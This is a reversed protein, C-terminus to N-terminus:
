ESLRKLMEELEEASKGELLKWINPAESKSIESLVHTPDGQWDLLENPTCQFLECLQVLTSLRVMKAEGSVLTRAVSDSFGHNVLYSRLHKVGRMEILRKLNLILM